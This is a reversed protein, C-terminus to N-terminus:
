WGKVHSALAAVQVQELAVRGPVLEFQGTGHLVLLLKMYAAETGGTNTAM